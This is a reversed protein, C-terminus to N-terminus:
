CESQSGGRSELVRCRRGEVLASRLAALPPVRRVALLPLLTFLLCIVLGATMGGVVSPWSIFFDIRFPILDRLLIPLVLQAAIGVVAGVIAGFLGLALAQLLYVTFSQRASAGLCRLVAITTIKQRVYVHVVSAVGIAGLFLGVFGVLQFFADIQTLADGLNKKREEATAFVLASDPFKKKLARVIAASDSGAPLKVNVRNVQAGAKQPAASLPIFARPQVTAFAPPEGPFAKLAGIITYPTTGIKVIDGVHAKYYALLSVDLIAVPGGLRLRAPADAPETIFEGYFPFRGEIARVQVRRSGTAFGVPASFFRERAMDGGLGALAQDWEPSTPLTGNIVLDAGLLSNAQNDIARRLNASVSGIAVLAGIGLVISLSLLLLRRRSARSDRWAM